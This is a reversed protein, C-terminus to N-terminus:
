IGGLIQFPQIVLFILKRNAYNFFDTNPACSEGNQMELLLSPGETYTWNDATYIHLHVKPLLLIVMGYVMM